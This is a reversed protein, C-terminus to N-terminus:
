KNERHSNDLQSKAPLLFLRALDLVPVAGHGPHEFCASAWERWIREPEPLECAQADTVRIRMPPTDLPLAGHGLAATAPGQFATIAMLGTGGPRMVDRALIRQALDMVPLIEGEWILVQHCYPPSRPIRHLTPVEPLLHQLEGEGVAAHLGSGLDLLWAIAEKM